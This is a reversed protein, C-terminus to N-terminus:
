NVTLPVNTDEFALPHFLLNFRHVFFVLCSNPKIFDCLSYPMFLYQACSDNGGWGRNIFQIKEIIKVEVYRKDSDYRWVHM